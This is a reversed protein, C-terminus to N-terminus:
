WGPDTNYFKVAKVHFDTAADFGSNATGMFYGNRFVTDGVNDLNRFPGNTMEYTLVGDFWVRIIGDSAGGASSRSFQMRVQTWDGIVLPGTSHIFRDGQNPHGLGGSTVYEANAGFEKSSMPRVFSETDSTRWYEYTVQWTGSLSGYVTNWISLFKNNTAAGGVRHEYGADVHLDYEVWLAACDRGLDFRMEAGGTQTPGDPGYRLRLTDFGGFVVCTTTNRGTGPNLSGWVFGNDNHLVQAAFNESFFPDGPDPEVAEGDSECIAIDTLADGFLTASITKVTAAQTTTFTTEIIGNADTVGSLPAITNGSGSVAVAIDAAAVGILPYWEGNRQAGLQVTITRAEIGDSAIFPSDVSVFSGALIVSLGYWGVAEITVGTRGVIALGGATKLVGTAAAADAQNATVVSADLTLSSQEGSPVPGDLLLLRRRRRAAYLPSTLM